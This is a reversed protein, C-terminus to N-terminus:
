KFPNCNKDLILTRVTQYFVTNGTEEFFKNILLEPNLNEVSGAPLTINLVTNGNECCLSFSKIKDAIELEKIAGKKTKKSVTISDRNLFENLGDQLKGGDQFTIVFNAFTVDGTKLIPEAADFFHIYPPCVANLKECLTNLPYGDDLLRIDVIEYESEFGLSLPLAFTMYLHPNFGETYWVPLESKRIVRTMFRTMDLHSIFKMRDKKTYFLRVNKLVFVRETLILM